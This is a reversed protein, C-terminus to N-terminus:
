VCWLNSSLMPIAGLFIESLMLEFTIFGAAPAKTKILKPSSGAELQFCFVACVNSMEWMVSNVSCATNLIWELTWILVINVIQYSSCSDPPLSTAIFSSFVIWHLVRYWVWNITVNWFEFYRSNFATIWVFFQWIFIYGM